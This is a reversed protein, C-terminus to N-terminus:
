KKSTKSYFKRDIKEENKDIIYMESGVNSDAFWFPSTKYKNSVYYILKTRFNIEIRSIYRM